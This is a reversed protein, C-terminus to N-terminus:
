RAGGYVIMLTVGICAVVVFFFAVHRWTFRFSGLGHVSEPVLYNAPLDPPAIPRPVIKNTGM